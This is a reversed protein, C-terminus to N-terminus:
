RNGGTRVPNPEGRFLKSSSIKGGIHNHIFDMAIKPDCEGCMFIDVAAYNNEPWSHITAHSEALAVIGTVGFGEGFHHFYSHLVSAGSAHCGDEIVQQLLVSNGLIDADVNTFEAILHIGGPPVIKDM